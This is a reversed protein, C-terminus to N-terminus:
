VPHRVGTSSAEEIITRVWVLFQPWTITGSIGGLHYIVVGFIEHHVCCRHSEISFIQCTRARNSCVLARKTSLPDRM